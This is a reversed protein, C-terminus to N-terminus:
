NIRKFCPQIFERWIDQGDDVLLYKKRETIDTSINSNKKLFSLVLLSVNKWTYQMVAHQPPPPVFQIGANM